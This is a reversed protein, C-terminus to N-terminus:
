AFFESFIFRSFAINIEESTQMADYRIAIRAGIGKIERIPQATHPIPQPIRQGPEQESQALCKGKPPIAINPNKASNPSMPHVVPGNIEPCSEDSKPPFRLTPKAKASIKGIIRAMIIKSRLFDM